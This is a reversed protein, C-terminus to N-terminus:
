LGNIFAKEQISRQLKESFFSTETADPLRKIQIGSSAGGMTLRQDPSMALQPLRPKRRSSPSGPPTAHDITDQGQPPAIDSLKKVKSKHYGTLKVYGERDFPSRLLSLEEYHRIGLEQCIEAVVFFTMVSLNVRVSYRSKDPLEVVITRRVSTFELKADSMIGYAYLTQRPKNLWLQKDPYWLAFDTWDGDGTCHLVSACVIDPSSKHATHFAPVTMVSCQGGGGEVIGLVCSM